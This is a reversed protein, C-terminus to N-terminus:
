FLSFRGWVPNGSSSVSRRSPISGAVLSRVSSGDGTQRSPAVPAPTLWQAISRACRWPVASSMFSGRPGAAPETSMVCRIPRQGWLLQAAGPAAAGTRVTRIAGVRIAMAWALVGVAAAAILHKLTHGSVLGGLREDIAGDGVEALKALAYVGLGVLYMWSDGYTRPTMALILPIAV